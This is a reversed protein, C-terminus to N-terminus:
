LYFKRQINQTKYIVFKVIVFYDKYFNLASKGHRTKCSSNHINLDWMNSPCFNHCASKLSSQYGINDKFPMGGHNGEGVGNMRAEDQSSSM